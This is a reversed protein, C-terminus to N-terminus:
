YMKLIQWWHRVNNTLRWSSTEAKVSSLSSTSSHNDTQLSICIVQMHDLHHWQWGIMEQKALICFLNVNHYRSLWTTRSFMVNFLALM